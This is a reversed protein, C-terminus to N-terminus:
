LLKERAILRQQEKMIRAIPIPTVVILIGLEDNSEWIIKGEFDVSEGDFFTIKGRIWEAFRVQKPNSIRIGRESLDLISFTNKGIRVTPHDDPPYELRFYKRAQPGGGQRQEM